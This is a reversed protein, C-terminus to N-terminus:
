AILILEAGQDVSEGTNILIEKVVGDRQARLENEMKMAELIIVPQNAAIEEGEQVLIKVILGPIPARIFREGTPTTLQSRGANLRLTREDTVRVDYTNSGLTVRYGFRQEEVVLECSENDMLLSYLGLPGVQLLNAQVPEDDVVINSDDNIDIVYKQNDIQAHYKM